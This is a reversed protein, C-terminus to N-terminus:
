DVSRNQKLCAKERDIWERIYSPCNHLQTGAVECCALYTVVQQDILRVSELDLEVQNQASEERHVAEQIAPLGEAELRGSIILVVKSPGAMKQIKWM